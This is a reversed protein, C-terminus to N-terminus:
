YVHITPPSMHRGYPLLYATIAIFLGVACLLFLITWTPWDGWDWRGQVHERADERRIFAFAKDGRRGAHFADQEAKGAQATRHEHSFGPEGGKKPRKILDNAM